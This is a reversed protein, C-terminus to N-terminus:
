AKHTGPVRTLQSIFSLINLVGKQFLEFARAFINNSSGSPQGDNQEDETEASSTGTTDEDQSDQPESEKEKEKASDTGSNEDDGSETADDASDLIFAVAHANPTIHQSKWLLQIGLYTTLLAVGVTAIRIATIYKGSINRFLLM